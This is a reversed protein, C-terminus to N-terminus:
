SFIMLAWLNSVFGVFTVSFSAQSNHICHESILELSYVDCLWWIIFFKRLEVDQFYVESIEFDQGIFLCPFSLNLGVRNNLRGSLKPIM